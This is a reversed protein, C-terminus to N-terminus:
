SRQTRGPMMALESVQVNRRDKEVDANHGLEDTVNADVVFAADTFCDCVQDTKPVPSDRNM